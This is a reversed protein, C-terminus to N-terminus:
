QSIRERGVVSHRRCLTGRVDGLLGRHRSCGQGCREGTLRVDNLHRDGSRLRRLDYVHLSRWLWLLWDNLLLGRRRLWLLGSLGNVDFDVVGGSCGGSGARWQCDVVVGLCGCYRLWLSLLPTPCHCPSTSSHLAANAPGAPTTTTRQWDFADIPMYPAAASIGKNLRWQIEYCCCNRVTTYQSALLFSDVLWVNWM